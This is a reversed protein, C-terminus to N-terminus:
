GEQYTKIETKTPRRASIIRINVENDKLELYTHVVVLLNSQKARGITLWREEDDSHEEDFISVAFPDSFVTLADEFTVGHKARNNTAKNRDWSYEYRINSM